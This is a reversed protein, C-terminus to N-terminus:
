GNDGGGGKRTRQLNAVTPDITVQVVFVFANILVITRSATFPVSKEAEGGVIGVVVVVIVVNIVDVVVVVCSQGIFSHGSEDSIKFYQTISRKEVPNNAM